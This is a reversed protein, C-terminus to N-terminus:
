KSRSHNAVGSDSPPHASGNWSLSSFFRPPIWTLLLGGIQGKSASYAPAARSLPSLLLTFVLVHSVFILVSFIGNALEFYKSFM